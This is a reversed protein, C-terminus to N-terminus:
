NLDNGWVSETWFICHALKEYAEAVANRLVAHEFGLVEFRVGTIAGRTELLAESSSSGRTVRKRQSETQPRRGTQMREPIALKTSYRAEQIRDLFKDELADFLRKRLLLFVPDSTRLTRDV